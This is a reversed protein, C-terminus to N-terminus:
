DELKINNDKCWQRLAKEQELSEFDYWSQLLGEAELLAKFNSYAGSHRFFNEVVVLKEPLKEEMFEFVLTQGLDLDNKRPIDICNEDDLMDEAIEIEKMDGLESQYLIEETDKRFVARNMGYSDFNVFEYAHEIEKFNAM